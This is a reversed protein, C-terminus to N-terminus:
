VVQKLKETEQQHKKLAGTSQLRAALNGFADCVRYDSRRYKLRCFFCVVLPILAHPQNYFDQLATLGAFPKLELVLGRDGDPTTVITVHREVGALVAQHRSLVSFHAKGGGALDPPHVVLAGVTRKNLAVLNCVALQFFFSHDLESRTPGL